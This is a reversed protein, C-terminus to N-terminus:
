VGGAKDGGRGRELRSAYVSRRGRPRISLREKNQQFIREAEARSGPFPNNLPQEVTERHLQQHVPQQTGKGDGAAFRGKDDHNPNM